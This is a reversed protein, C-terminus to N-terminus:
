KIFLPKIYSEIIAKAKFCYWCLGDRAVETIKCNTCYIAPERNNANAKITEEM